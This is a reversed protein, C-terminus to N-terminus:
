QYATRHTAGVICGDGPTFALHVSSRLGPADGLEHAGHTPLVERCVHAGLGDAANEVEAPCGNCAAAGLRCVARDAVCEVGMSIPRTGYNAGAGCARRDARREGVPKGGRGEVDVVSVTGDLTM